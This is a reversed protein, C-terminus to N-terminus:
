KVEMKIELIDWTKRRVKCLPPIVTSTDYEDVVLPGGIWDPTVDKRQLQPTDRWGIEKGFYIPRQRNIANSEKGATVRLDEPVRSKETVGRAIVRVNIVDLIEENSSFGYFKEHAETFNKAVSASFASGGSAAVTLESNEGVYCLDAFREFFIQRDEFGERVLSSRGAEEMTAFRTEIEGVDVDNLNRKYTQVFHHETEPFLLGLASFVGSIPPVLIRSIELSKALTVAHVGGNGGFAMLAFGRPDRGRESSVSRLARAMLADAVIHIGYAADELSIDLPRAVQEMIAAAALERNLQVGGGVLYEPNIFGLVVNADTVTVIQGGLDYCVPGPNAGASDPGVRLSGGADIRVLSGGGAGVEAIDIAPVRVHYGGGTLLRGSMNIGGGVHLSGVRDFQGHEVVSAKATTGGMDFTQINSYGLKRALEAAGVVGSAPGSEIIQIPRKSAAEVGMTGGSSQMIRLPATIELAKLSAEMSMLYKQVVPTLYANVVTTSTREYEKIEPLIESSLCIPIDRDRDRVMAAIEREHAGNAYANLLCVAISEIGHEFLEDIVEAAQDRDVPQEVVGLHNMRENVEMRHARCVLPEPKQWKLDFLVPMRLRRIELIDRFGTTTILGTKAGKHELIANTAITTGHILEKVQAGTLRNKELVSKVAEVIGRNYDDPTSLVKATLVSGEETLFVIDTFTGGIDIGVRYKM